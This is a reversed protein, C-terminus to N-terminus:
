DVIGIVYTESALKPIAGNHWLSQVVHLTSQRVQPSGFSLEGQPALQRQLFLPACRGKQIRIQTSLSVQLDFGGCDGLLLIGRIM